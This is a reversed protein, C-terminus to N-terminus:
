DESTQTWTMVQAGPSAVVIDSAGQGDALNMVRDVRMTQSGDVTLGGNHDGEVCDVVWANATVTTSTVTATTGTGTNLEFDEISDVGQYLLFSVALGSRDTSGASAMTTVVNATTVTPLALSWISAVNEAGGNSRNAVVIKSFAEATNFIVTTPEVATNGGNAVCALLICNTCSPITVSTTDTVASLATITNNTVQTFTIAAWAPGLLAPILLLALLGSYIIHM